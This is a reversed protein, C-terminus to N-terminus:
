CMLFVPIMIPDRNPLSVRDDKVYDALKFRVMKDDDWECQRVITKWSTKITVHNKSNPRDSHYELDVDVYFQLGDHYQLMANHYKFM